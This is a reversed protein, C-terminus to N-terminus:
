DESIDSPVSVTLKVRITVRVDFRASNDSVTGSYIYAVIKNTTMYDNVASFDGSLQFETNLLDSEAVNTPSANFTQSDGTAFNTALRFTSTLDADVNGSFNTYEYKLSQMEIAKIQDRSISIGEVELNTFFNAGGSESFSVDMEPDEEQAIDISITNTFSRTVEVEEFILDEIEECSILLVSATIFFLIRKVYKM